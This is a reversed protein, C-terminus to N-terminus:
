QQTASRSERVRIMSGQYKTNAEAAPFEVFQTEVRFKAANRVLTAIADADISSLVLEEACRAVMRNFGQADTADVERRSILGQPPLKQGIPHMETRTARFVLGLKPTLAVFRRPTIRIDVTDDIAVPNDSTMFPYPTSNDLLVWDLQYIKWAHEALQKTVVAKVYGPEFDLSIEGGELMAIGDVPLSPNGGHKEKMRKASSLSATADDIFLERGVRRWAPTCTMLNAVYGAIALRHEPTCDSNVFSEVATKWSPEFIKRYQGLLDPTRKLWAVNNDGDWERCVDKPWCPFRKGTAKQYGYLRGGNASDGFQELYTRAAFHDRAM